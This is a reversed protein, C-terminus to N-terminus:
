VSGRQMRQAVPLAMWSLTTVILGVAFSNWMLYADASYGLIWPSLIMWVGAILNTWEEWPKINKIAMAAAGFIIAGVIWFNWMTGMMYTPSLSQNVTWPIIFLWAGLLLNVWNEWDASKRM